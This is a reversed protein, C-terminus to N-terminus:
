SRASATPTSSRRGSSTPTATRTPAPGRTCTRGTSPTRSTSSSRTSRSSWRSSRTCSSSCSARRRPAALARRRGDVRRPRRDLVARRDLRLRPRVARRAVDPLTTADAEVTAVTVGCEAALVELRDLATRSFDVSTVTAGAGRWRSRTAASTASCTCCRRARRGRARRDRRRDRRAGRRGHADRGRAAPRPRLLRRRGHRPVPRAGGLPRHNADTTADDDMPPALSAARHATQEARRPSRRAFSSTSRSTASADTCGTARPTRPTPSSCRPRAATWAAAPHAPRHAGRRLRSAATRAAHVRARRADGDGASRRSRRPTRRWRCSARWRAVVALRGSRVTARAAPSPREPRPACARGGGRLVRPVVAPRARPRGETARRREGDVTPVSAGVTGHVAGPAPEALPPGRRPVPDGVGRLGRPVVRPRPFGAVAPLDGDVAAVSDALVATCAADMPGLSLPFPADADGRRRRATTTACSGGSRRAEHGASRSRGHTAVSGLVNTRLPERAPVGRHPRSSSPPTTRVSWECRPLIRVARAAARRGGLRSGGSARM